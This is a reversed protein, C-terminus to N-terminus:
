RVADRLDSHVDVCPARLRICSARRILPGIPIGVKDITMGAAEGSGNASGHEVSTRYGRQKANGGNAVLKAIEAVFGGANMARRATRVAFAARRYITDGVVPLISMKFM